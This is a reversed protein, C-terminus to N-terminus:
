ALSVKQSQQHTEATAAFSIISVCLKHYGLTRQKAHKRHRLIRQRESSKNKSEDRLWQENEVFTVRLKWGAIPSIKLSTHADSKRQIESAM